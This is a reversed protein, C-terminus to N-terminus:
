VLLDAHLAQVERHLQVTQFYKDEAQRRESQFVHVSLTLVSLAVLPVAVITLGKVRVGRAAWVQECRRLLQTGAPVAVILLGRLRVRM